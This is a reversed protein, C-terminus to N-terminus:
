RATITFKATRPQGKHHASDTPTATLKYSGPALRKGALVGTFPISNAGRRAQVTISGITIYRTCRPEARNARRTPQCAAAVTHGPTQFYDLFAARINNLSPMAAM